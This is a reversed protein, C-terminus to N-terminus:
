ILINFLMQVSQCSLIASIGMVFLGETELLETLYAIVNM